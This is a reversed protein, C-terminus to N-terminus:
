SPRLTEAVTTPRSGPLSRASSRASALPSVGGRQASLPVRRLGALEHEREATGAARRAGAEADHARDGGLPPRGRARAELAVELGVDPQMRAERAPQQERGVARREADVGGAQQAARADRNRGRDDPAHGLRKEGM